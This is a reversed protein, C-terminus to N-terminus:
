KPYGMRYKCGYGWRYTTRWFPHGGIRVAAWMLWAVIPYGRESVCDRLKRDASARKWAPGGKWYARDHEVCCSEWPTETHFLLKWTSSMHGSCGDTTFPVTPDATTATM